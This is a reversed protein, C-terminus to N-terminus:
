GSSPLTQCENHEAEAAQGERRRLGVIVSFLNIDFKKFVSYSLRYICKRLAANPAVIHVLGPKAQLSPWVQHLPDVRAAIVWEQPQRSELLIAVTMPKKYLTTTKLSDEIIVDHGNFALGLVEHNYEIQYKHPQLIISIKFRTYLINSM